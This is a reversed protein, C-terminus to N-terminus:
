LSRQGARISYVRDINQKFWGISAGERIDFTPVYPKLDLLPTGDVINVDEIHLTGGEVRMLRVISLGIPNPRKPSRTAFIGHPRNDLFPTVMLSSERVLHLHYLLILHSFGEIDQLGAQYAPDLEIQGAVGQAAVAQIPMGTPEPYPSRIIGIPTFCIAM